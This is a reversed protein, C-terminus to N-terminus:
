RVVKSNAERWPPTVPGTATFISADNIFERYRRMTKENFNEHGNRLCTVADFVYPSVHALSSIQGM